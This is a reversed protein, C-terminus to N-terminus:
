ITDACNTHVRTSRRSTTHITHKKEPVLDKLRNMVEHVVSKHPPKSLTLFYYPKSKSVPNQIISQFGSFSGVKQQNAPISCYDQDIRTVTHIM